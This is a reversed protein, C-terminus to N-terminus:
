SGLVKGLVSNTSILGITRSDSSHNRNDGMVFLQGEGVTWTKGVWRSYDPIEAPNVYDETLLGGNRYVGDEKIEIVDGPVGIVRKIWYKHEYNKKSISMSIINYKFSEAIEVFFNRHGQDRDFVIVDGHKPTSFVYPLRSIFVTQGNYYSANMSDGSIKSIRFIYANIFIAAIFAIVITLIWSLASRLIKKWKPKKDPEPKEGSEPMEDEGDEPGEGCETGETEGDETGEAEGDEASFSFDAPSVDADAGIEELSRDIESEFEDISRDIGAEAEIEDGFAETNGSTVKEIEFDDDKM